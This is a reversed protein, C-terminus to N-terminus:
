KSIEWVDTGNSEFYVDRCFEEDSLDCFIKDAKEKAEDENDAEVDIDYGYYGMFHVRYKM